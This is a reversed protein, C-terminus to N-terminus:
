NGLEIWLRPYYTYAILMKGMRTGKGMHGTYYVVYGNALWGAWWGFTGGSIIVHDCSSLVALHVAASAEPLVFVDTRKLNEQCWPLDDSAVLFIIKRKPFKSKLLSFAKTFYSKDAVGYGWFKGFDSLFDGRRVHVGVTMTVNYNVYVNRLIKAADNAIYDHFTFEQRVEDVVNDFYVFAQLFGDIRTHEKRLSMMRPDFAFPNAEKITSWKDVSENAQVYKLKFTKEIDTNHEIFMKRGQKRSIGLISAYKFMQNGLRGHWINNSTVYLTVNNIEGTQNNLEPNTLSGNATRNSGTVGVTGSSSTDTTNQSTDIIKCSFWRQYAEIPVSDKVQRRITIVILLAACIYLVWRMPIARM